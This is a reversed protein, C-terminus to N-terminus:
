ENKKMFKELQEKTNNRKGFKKHFEWHCKKCLTIGNDIALRLEPYEAFNQIHHSHLYIGKEKCKQCTYNDRAFVAERWLRYEIRNRIKKNEPTKGGQWNSSKIGFKGKHSEKLREKWKESLKKGKRLVFDKHGKQFGFKKGKQYAKKVSIKNAEGIKRKHEKTLKNM